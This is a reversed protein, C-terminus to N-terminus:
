VPRWTTTRARGIMIGQRGVKRVTRGEGPKRKKQRAEREDIRRSSRKKGNYMYM